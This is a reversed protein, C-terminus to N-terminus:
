LVLGGAMEKKPKFHGYQDATILDLKWNLVPEGNKKIWNSELRTNFYYDVDIKLDKESCYKKIDQLTVKSQRQETDARSQEPPTEHLTERGTAKKIRSRKVRATSDDSKYQRKGWSLITIVSNKVTIIKLAELEKLASEWSNRRLRLRWVPDDKHGNIVGFHELESCFALMKIFIKFTKNSMNNIKPDDLIDTYVRFWKM